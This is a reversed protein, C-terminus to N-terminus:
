LNIKRLGATALVALMMRRMSLNGVTRDQTQRSTTKSSVAGARRNRGLVSLCHKSTTADRYVSMARDNSLGVTAELRFTEEASIAACHGAFAKCTHIRM